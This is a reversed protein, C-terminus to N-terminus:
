ACYFNGSCDVCREYRRRCIRGRCSSSSGSLIVGVIQERTDKYVAIMKLGCDNFKAMVESKSADISVSQVLSRHKMIDHVDLDNFRFIKNLMSSENAELTGEKEGVDILM